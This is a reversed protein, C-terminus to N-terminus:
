AKSDKLLARFADVLRRSMVVNGPRSRRSVRVGLEDLDLEPSGNNLRGIWSRLEAELDPPLVKPATLRPPGEGGVAGPDEYPMRERILRALGNCRKVTERFAAVLLEVRKRTGADLTALESAKFGVEEPDLKSVLTGPDILELYAERWINLLASYANDLRSKGPFDQFQIGGEEAVAFSTPNRPPRLSLLKECLAAINRCNAHFKPGKGELPEIHLRTRSSAAAIILSPRSAM